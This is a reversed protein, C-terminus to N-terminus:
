YLLTNRTVIQYFPSSGLNTAVGRGRLILMQGRPVFVRFHVRAITENGSSGVRCCQAHLFIQSQLQMPSMFFLIGPNVGGYELAPDTM